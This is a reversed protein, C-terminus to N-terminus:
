WGIEWKTSVGLLPSGSHQVCQAASIGAAAYYKAIMRTRNKRAGRPFVACM